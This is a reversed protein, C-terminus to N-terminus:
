SHALHPRTGCARRLRGDRSTAANCDDSLVTPVNSLNYCSSPSFGNRARRSTTLRHSARPCEDENKPYPRARLDGHSATTLARGAQHQAFLRSRRRSRDGASLRRGACFAIPQTSPGARTAGVFVVAPPEESPSILSHLGGRSSALK